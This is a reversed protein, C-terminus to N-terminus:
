NMVRDQRRRFGDPIAVLHDKEPEVKIVKAFPKGNKGKNHAITIFAVSKLLADLDFVPNPPLAGVFMEAALRLFSNEALTRNFHQFTSYRHGTSNTIELLWRFCVQEKPGFKTPRTGISYIDALVAVHRGEPPIEFRKGASDILM